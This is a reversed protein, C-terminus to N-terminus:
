KFLKLKDKLQQKLEEKAKEKIETKKEAVEKQAQCKVIEGLDIAFSPDSFPGAVQM